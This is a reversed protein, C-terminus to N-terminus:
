LCQLEMVIDVAQWHYADHVVCIWVVGEWGTKLICKLLLRGNIGLEELDEREKLIKSNFSQVFKKESGHTGCAGCV